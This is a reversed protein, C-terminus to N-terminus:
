PEFQIARVLGDIGPRDGPAAYEVRIKTRKQPGCTLDVTEGNHGNVTLGKPDDILLTKKGEATQMVIKAPEACQLEVFTGSFSPLHTREVRVEFSGPERERRQIRPPGDPRPA